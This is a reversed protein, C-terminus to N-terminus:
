INQTVVFFQNSYHDAFLNVAKLGQLLDGSALNQSHLTPSPGMAPDAAYASLLTPAQPAVPSPSMM